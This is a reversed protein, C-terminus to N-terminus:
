ISSCMLTLTEQMSINLGLSVPGTSCALFLSGDGMVRRPTSFVLQMKWAKMQSEVQLSLSRQSAGDTGAAHAEGKEAARVSHPPLLRVRM